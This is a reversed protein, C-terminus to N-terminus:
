ADDDLQNTICQIPMVIALKINNKYRINGVNVIRIVIIRNRFKSGEAKAAMESLFLKKKMM